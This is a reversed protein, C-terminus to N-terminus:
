LATFCETRRQSGQELCVQLEFGDVLAALTQEFLEHDCVNEYIEMWLLSDQRNKLLRVTAGSCRALESQMDGVRRQCSEAEAPNVRYYIYYHWM